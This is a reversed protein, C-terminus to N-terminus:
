VLAADGSDSVLEVSGLDDVLMPYGTLPTGGWLTLKSRFSSMPVDRAVVRWAAGYDFGQDRSYVWVEDGLRAVAAERPCNTLEAFLRGPAMRDMLLRHVRSAQRGYALAIETDVSTERSDPWADLRGLDPQDYALSPRHLAIREAATALGYFETDGIPRYNRGYRVPVHWVPRLARASLQTKGSGRLDLTLRPAWRAGWFPLQFGTLSEKVKNGRGDTLALRARETGVAYGSPDAFYVIGDTKVGSFEAFNRIVGAFPLQSSSGGQPGLCASYAAYTTAPTGTYTTSSVVTPALGPTALLIQRVKTAANHTVQVQMRAGTAIGGISTYAPSTGEQYVIVSHAGSINPSIGIAAGGVGGQGGLCYLPTAMHPPSAGSNWSGRDTIPVLLEFFVTWDGSMYPTATVPLVIGQRFTNRPRMALWELVPTSGFVGGGIPPQVSGIGARGDADFRLHLGLPALMKTLRDVPRWSLDTVVDGLVFNGAHAAAGDVSWSDWDHDGTLAASGLLRGLVDAIDGAAAGGLAVDATVPSSQAAVMELVGEASITYDAPTALTAAQSRVAPFSQAGMGAPFHAAEFRERISDIRKAEANYVTGLVAPRPNGALDASGLDSAVWSFDTDLAGALAGHNAAAAYDTVTGGANDDGPWLGILTEDDSALAVVDTGALVSASTQATATGTPAILGAAYFRLDCWTVTLGSAAGVTIGVAPIDVGASPLQATGLTLNNLYAYAVGRVDVGFVLCNWWTQDIISGFSYATVGGSTGTLQLSWGLEPDYILEALFQVNAGSAKSLLQYTSGPTGAPARFRHVIRFDKRDYAALAPITCQGSATGLTKVATPIGVYRKSPVATEFARQPSAITIQAGDRSLIPEGSCVGAQLVELARAGYGVPGARLVVDRGALSRWLLHNLPAATGQVPINRLRVKTEQKATAGSFLADESLAEALNSELALMPPFVASPPYDSPGTDLRRNAARLTSTTGAAPNSVAAEFTLQLKAGPDLLTAELTPPLSDAGLTDMAQGATGVSVFDYYCGVAYVEGGMTVFGASLETAAGNAVVAPVSLDIAATVGDQWVYARLDTGSVLLRLWCWMGRPSVSTATSTALQTVVDGIRKYLVINGGGLRVYYYSYNDNSSYTCRVGLEAYRGSDGPVFVHVRVDQDGSAATIVEAATWRMQGPLLSLGSLRALQEVLNRRGGHDHGRLTCAAVSTGNLARWDDLTNQGRVYERFDTLLKAM